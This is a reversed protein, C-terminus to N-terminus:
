LWGNDNANRRVTIMATQSTGDSAKVTFATAGASVGTIVATRGEIRVTAVDTNVSVLEFSLNEGGDFFRSLEIKCSQDAGIGLYVNPLDLKVGNGDVLALMKAADIRGVGMRGWYYKNLEMLVPSTEGGMSQYKYYLKSKQETPFPNVAQLLLEKFDTARFHKHLRAAHSLGLAAVGSVHPCAMSTGEMYGYGTGNSFAPPLTSLIQGKETGHYDIDGGPASIDVGRGYNTFSSPLNSADLAAVSIFDGYAGPYGAAPAYENGAAFIVIGGDIVGNPSGANHIFYDFAEKEVSCADTWEKDSGPGPKFNTPDTLSSNYGWSCQLIVAGNDAAYKVARAEMYQTVGFDGSFMQLSMIKVGSGKTGDGGAIGCVGMGNNNVAAITGAVHTGHGTDSSSDWAIVPTNEAFNYGYVDDKYGNNDDDIHNDQTEKKNVWMNDRLDPHTWMVGEDMVAVIISSDGTCRKWAEACNVDAGAVSKPVSVGDNIYHWQDPLLDDTFPYTGDSQFVPGLHVEAPTAPRVARRKLEHNYQIKAIEAVGSLHEVARRLDMDESFRVVYWLNLGSQRTYQESANVPFVRELEYSGIADLACDVGIIGSRTMTTYPGMSRTAALDLLHVAEPKFKVLLEGAKAGEATNVVIVDNLADVQTNMESFDDACAALFLVSLLSSIIKFKDMNKM